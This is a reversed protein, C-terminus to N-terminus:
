TFLRGDFSDRSPELTGRTGESLLRTRESNREGVAAQFSPSHFSCPSVTRDSGKRFLPLPHLPPIGELRPHPRGLLRPNAGFRSARQGIVPRPDEAQALTHFHLGGRGLQASLLQPDADAVDGITHLGLHHLRAQTKPGAGWLRSVSLPALWIKAEETTM